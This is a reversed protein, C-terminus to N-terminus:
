SEREDSWPQGVAGETQANTSTERDRDGSTGPPPTAVPIGGEADHKFLEKIRGLFGGTAM